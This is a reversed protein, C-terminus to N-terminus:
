QSVLGHLKNFETVTRAGTDLVADYIDGSFVTKGYIERRILDYKVLLIADLASQDLTLLRDAYKLEDDSAWDPQQLWCDIGWKDGEFPIELGVWYGKPRRALHIPKFNVCDATAIKRVYKNGALENVLSAFDHKSVSSEVVGIDLDPYVMLNYEYSGSIPSVDGYKAFIEFINTEKILKNAQNKLRAQETWLASVSPTPDTFKPLTMM